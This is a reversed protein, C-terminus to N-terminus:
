FKKLLNLFWIFIQIELLNMLLAYDKKGNPNNLEVVAYPIDGERIEIVTANTLAVNEKNSLDSILSLGNNVVIKDFSSLEKVSNVRELIIKNKKM